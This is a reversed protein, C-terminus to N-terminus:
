KLTYAEISSQLHVQEGDHKFGGGFYATKGITFATAFDRQTLGTNFTPPLMTSANYVTMNGDFGPMLVNDGVAVATVPNYQLPGTSWTGFDGNYTDLLGNPELFFAFDGASAAAIAPGAVWSGSTWTNYKADYIDVTSTGAPAANAAASVFVALRGVTTAVCPGAFSLHATTWRGYKADYIDVVASPNPPASPDGKRVPGSGGAFLALRGVTTAAVGWRPASLKATSWSHTRANYIDVADTVVQGRDFTGGAFLAQKGVATAGMLDRGRPLQSTSWKHKPADYFYVSNLEPTDGVPNASGGAFIATDGVVATGGPSFRRPFSLTTHSFSASGSFLLRPELAQLENIGGM